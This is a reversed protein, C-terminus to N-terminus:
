KVFSASRAEGEARLPEGEESHRQRGAGSKGCQGGTGAEGQRHWMLGGVTGLLSRLSTTSASFLSRSLGPDERSPSFM